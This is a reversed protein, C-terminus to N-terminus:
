GILSYANQPLSLPTGKEQNEQLDQQMLDIMQPDEIGLNEYGSYLNKLARDRKSNPAFAMLDNSPYGVDIGMIGEEQPQEDLLSESRYSTPLDRNLYNMKYPDVGRYTDVTRAGEFPTNTYTTPQTMTRIANANTFDIGQPVQSAAILSSINNLDGTELKNLDLNNLNSPIMGSNDFNFTQTPKEETSLMLENDLDNYYDPNVNSFRRMDYTPENYKKGLGFRQGVNRVINGLFGGGTIFDMIGSRRNKKFATPDYAKAMALEAPSVTNRNDFFGPNVKQGGGAAIFASRIDEATKNRQEVGPPLDAGGGTGAFGTVDGAEAASMQSGSVNQSEDTSGFGNLSM